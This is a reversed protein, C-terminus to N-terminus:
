RDSPLLWNDAVLSWSAPRPRNFTLLQFFFLLPVTVCLECLVSCLSCLSRCSSSFLYRLPASFASSRLPFLFGLGLCVSRAQPVRLYM